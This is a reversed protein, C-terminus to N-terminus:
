AAVPHRLSALANSWAVTQELVATLEQEHRPAPKFTRYNEFDTALYLVLQSKVDALQLEGVLSRLHEVGRAGGYVGYSVFGVAKNNWEKNLFDFADILAGSPLHNYEPTVIIFGDFSAIKAAWVFTHAQSYQDMSPPVPEDMHPLEYDLLDVLEFEADTRKAAIEHVWQGVQAGVRGPRTSGLIIGIKTM